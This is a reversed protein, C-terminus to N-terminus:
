GTPARLAGHGASDLAGHSRAVERYFGGAKVWHSAFSHRTAQYVDAQTLRMAALAERLCKRLTHPDLRKRSGGRMPPVVQGAGCQGAQRCPARAFLSDLIPVERSDLDKTRMVVGTKSKNRRSSGGDTGLGRIVMPLALIEGTRLGAMSGIAFALPEVEPLVGISAALRVVGRLANTKPSRAYASLPRTGLTVRPKGIPTHRAQPRAFEPAEITMRPSQVSPPDDRPFLDLVPHHHPRFSKSELSTGIKSLRKGTSRAALSGTPQARALHHVSAHPATWASSGWVKRLHGGPLAAPM